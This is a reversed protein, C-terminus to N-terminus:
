KPLTITAWTKGGDSTKVVRNVEADTAICLDKTTCSIGNLRRIELTSSAKWTYGEDNTFLVGGGKNLESVSGTANKPETQVQFGVVFCSAITPCSISQLRFSQLLPDNNEPFSPTTIPAQLYPKIADVLPQQWTQGLDHTISVTGGNGIVICTTETSCTIHKGLDVGILHFNVIQTQIEWTVGGNTTVAFANPYSRIMACVKISVCSIDSFSSILNPTTLNEWTTGRDETKIVIDGNGPGLVFCTTISPCSFKFTNISLRNDKSVSSLTILHEQWSSGSDTTVLLSGSPDLIFCIQATPCTVDTLTSNQFNHSEWKEGFDKSIYVASYSSLAVCTSSSCNLTKLGSTPSTQSVCSSLSFFVILITLFKIYLYYHKAHIEVKIRRYKAFFNHYIETEIIRNLQDKQAQVAVINRTRCNKESM